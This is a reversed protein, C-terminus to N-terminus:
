GAPLAAGAGQDVHVCGQGAGGAAGRARQGRHHPRQHPRRAVPGSSTCTRHWGSLLLLSICQGSEKGAQLVGEGADHAALCHAVGDRQGAAAGGEAAAADVLPHAVLHAKLNVKKCKLDRFEPTCVVDAHGSHRATSCGATMRASGM